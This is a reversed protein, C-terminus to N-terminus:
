SGAFRAGLMCGPVLVALFALHYWLPMVKWYQMQVAIGVLLLLVGLILAHQGDASPAIRATLYGAAVSLAASVVVLAALLGSGDV